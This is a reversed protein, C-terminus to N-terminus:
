KWTKGFSVLWVTGAALHTLTMMILRLCVRDSCPDMGLPMLSGRMVAILMFELWTQCISTAFVHLHIHRGLRYNNLQSYWIYKPIHTEVRFILYPFKWDYSQYFPLLYGNKNNLYEGSKNHRIDRTWSDWNLIDCQLWFVHDQYLRGVDRSHAARAKAATTLPSSCTVM